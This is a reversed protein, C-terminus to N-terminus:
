GSPNGNFALRNPTGSPLGTIVGTTALAVIRNCLAQAGPFGELGALYAALGAIHPSAMSTGSITNTSSGIWTSLISQGPAFIDVGSGYNSFSAKADASTTAGVTCVTPESAPSVNAANQNENGAAVALFINNDILSKAASNLSASYGGGLSMNAVSGNPCSRSRSDSVVYNIGAIIGSTSGSGSDSLVKVGLLTTRKAVGYTTSGITGAVHTGHGNGDANSGQYSVLQFARGGFNPHNAQIGTDIIYSCTGAGASDDYTYGTPGRQRTSIRALGWPASAQTTYAALTVIADQEIFDVSPDDRLLELTKADIKGSFGKFAGKYIHKPKGSLLKLGEDVASFATIDKYKVIYTDKILSDVDRPVHLPAPEDRRTPAGFAVPLLALVLSLRM